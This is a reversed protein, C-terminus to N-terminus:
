ESAHCALDLSTMLGERVKNRALRAFGDGKGSGFHRAGYGREIEAALFGPTQRPFHRREVGCCARAAIHSRTGAPGTMAIEGKL